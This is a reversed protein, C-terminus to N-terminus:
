LTRNFYFCQNRIRLRGPGTLESYHTSVCNICSVSIYLSVEEHTLLGNAIPRKLHQLINFFTQCSVAHSQGIAAYEVWQALAEDVVTMSSQAIHQQLVNEAPASFDGNWEM